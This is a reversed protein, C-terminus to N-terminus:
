NLSSLNTGSTVGYATVDRRELNTNVGSSTSDTSFDKASPFAQPGFPKFLLTRLSSAFSIESGRQEKEIM